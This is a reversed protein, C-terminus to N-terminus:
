ASRGSKIGAKRQGASDLLHKFNSNFTSFSGGAHQYADRQKIWDDVPVKGTTKDKLGDLAISANGLKNKSTGGSGTKMSKALKIAQTQQKVHFDALSQTLRSVPINFKNAVQHIFELKYQSPLKNLEGYISEAELDSIGKTAKLQDYQDKLSNNREKVLEKVYDMKEKVVGSQTKASAENADMLAKNIKVDIDQLKQQHANEAALIHGSLLDPSSQATDHQIGLLQLGKEYDGYSKDVANRQNSREANISAILAKTANDSTAAIRDLSQTYPDVAQAQQATGTQNATQTTPPTNTVNGLNSMMTNLEGTAQATARRASGSTVIANNTGVPGNHTLTEGPQILDYNGSKPLSFGADQYNKYGLSNAIGNLTDGPRVTYTAQPTEPAQATPQAVTPVTPTQASTDNSNTPQVPPM